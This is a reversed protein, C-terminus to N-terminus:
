SSTKGTFAAANRAGWIFVCMSLMIKGIFGHWGRRCLALVEIAPPIAALLCVDNGPGFIGMM